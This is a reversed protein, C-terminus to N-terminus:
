KVLYEANTEALNQGAPLNSRHSYGSENTLNFGNLLDQFELRRLRMSVEFRRENPDKKSAYVDITMYDKEAVAHVELGIGVVAKLVEGGAWTM